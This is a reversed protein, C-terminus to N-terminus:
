DWMWEDEEDDGGDLQGLLAAADGASDAAAPQAHGPLTAEPLAAEPPAAAAAEPHSWDDDDAWGDEWATDATEADSSVGLASLASRKEEVRWATIASADAMQQNFKAANTFRSSASAAHPQRRGGGGGKTKAIPKKPSAAAAPAGSSSSAMATGYLLEHNKMMIEQNTMLLQQMKQIEKQQTALM